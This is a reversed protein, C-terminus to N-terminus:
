VRKTESNENTAQEGTGAKLKEAHEEAQKKAMAIMDELKLKEMVAKAVKPKVKFIERGDAGVTKLVKETQCLFDVMGNLDEKSADDVFENWIDNFGVEGQIKIFRLVNKWELMKVNKGGATLAKHMGAELRELIDLAKQCEELTLTMDTVNDSFHIAMALKPAHINKRSAYHELKRNLFQKKHPWMAPNEFYDKFLAWAEPTYSVEGYVRSLREIHALIDNACMKQLETMESGGFREFRNKEAYVCITRSFFGDSLLSDNVGEEIFSTTTGGFFNLCPKRIKSMGQTKTKYTYDKCDFACLFYKCLDESKRKFLSSLEELCFALSNHTYIGNPALYDPPVSIRRPCSCAAEMLSEYTTAEAAVPILLAEEKNGSRPMKKTVDESVGAQLMAAAAEDQLKSTMEALKAQEPTLPILKHHRIFSNIPGITRGKGVGPPGVLLIFLNPFLPDEAKGTWVRRQLAAAIMYYFGMELYDDPSVLDKTYHRWKDLNTTLQPQTM